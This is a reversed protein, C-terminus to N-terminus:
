DLNYLFCCDYHSNGARQYCVVCIFKCIPCDIFLCGPDKVRWILCRCLIAYKNNKESCKGNHHLDKCILCLSKSCQVCRAVRNDFKSIQVNCEKCWMKYNINKNGITEFSEPLFDVGICFNCDAKYECNECIFHNCAKIQTIPYQNSCFICTFRTHINYFNCNSCYYNLSKLCSPHFPSYCNSCWSIYENFNNCELCTKSTWNIKEYNESLIAFNPRNRHDVVIMIELIQKIYINKVSGLRKDITNQINNMDNFDDVSNLTVMVLCTLGLSWVDSKFADYIMNEIGQGIRLEPSMYYSTGVITISSYSLIRKSSGLDGIKLSGDDAILINDPKIDRHAIKQDQLFKFANILQGILKLQDLESWPQGSTIRRNIEDCLDKNKCYELVLDVHNDYFTHGLIKIVNPHNISYLLNLENDFNKSIKNKTGLFRKVCVLTNTKIDKAIYIQVDKTNYILSNLELESSTM